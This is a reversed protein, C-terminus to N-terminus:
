KKELEKITRRIEEKWDMQRMEDRVIERIKDEWAKNFRWKM